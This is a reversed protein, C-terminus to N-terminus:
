YMDALSYITRNFVSITDPVWYLELRAVDGTVAQNGIILILARTVM